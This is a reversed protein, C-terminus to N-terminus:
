WWLTLVVAIVLNLGHSFLCLPCLVKVRYFLSYVLYAGLVVSAWSAVRMLSVFMLFNVGVGILMLLVYYGVGLVSNPVGFVRADLHHVVLRCASEETRCFAPVLSNRPSILRYYVLSFYLSIYLGAGSLLILVGHM